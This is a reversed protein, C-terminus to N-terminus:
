KAPHLAISHKTKSGTKALCMTSSASYLCFGPATAYPPKMWTAVMLIVSTVMRMFKPQFDWSFHGSLASTQCFPVQICFVAIESMRSSTVGRNEYLVICYLVLFFSSIFM